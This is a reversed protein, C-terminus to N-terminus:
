KQDDEILFYAAIYLAIGLLKEWDHPDGFFIFGSVASLFLFLGNVVVKKISISAAGRQFAMLNAAVLCFVFGGIVVSGVVFAPVTLALMVDRTAIHPLALACLSLTVGGIFVNQAIAKEHGPVDSRLGTLIRTVGQNASYLFMAIFAWYVWTPLAVIEQLTPFGFMAYGGLVAVAIGIWARIGFRAKFFTIDILAGPVIALAVVIFRSYWSQFPDPRGRSAPPSGKM